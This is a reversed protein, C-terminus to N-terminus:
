AGRADDRPVGDGPDHRQEPRGEERLFEVPGVDAVRRDDGHDDQHDTHPREVPEFTRHQLLDSGIPSGIMETWSMPIWNLRPRLRLRLARSHNTLPWVPVGRASNQGNRLTLKSM